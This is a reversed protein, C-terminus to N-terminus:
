GPQSPRILDVEATGPSTVREAAAVYRRSLDEVAAVVRRCAGGDRAAFTAAIRAEYEPTPTPGHEVASVAAAVAGDVTTAVPGFGDRDYDFYGQRGVHEGSMMRERDFQFYVVPRDIYATNFAVSSYDTILLACHAYVDQVDRGTFRIPEVNPPLDMTSLISQMNPHPMFALRWGRDAVAAALAASRLLSDWSAFYESGWFAEDVARRQSAPALPLNLWNRWTPAVIVLDREEPPVARGKELLRDFRPLGTNRVEKSTYIYTTGDGAVSELEAATSVVFLDIDKANLWLSLDDKIVGHQLFAFKWTPRPVLRMIAPNRVIPVDAHSSLLWRANLMLMRWAFSGYDVVHTEGTARIRRDDPTGKEIVFWANIDPREARLYEFLRQGNDDADHLRDM